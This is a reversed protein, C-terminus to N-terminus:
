RPSGEVVPIRARAFGMVLGVQWALAQVIAGLAFARGHIWGTRSLALLAAALLILQGLYVVFAGALSLGPAGGIVARIGLVGIVFFLATVVTATVASWLASLGWLLPALVAALVAGVLGVLAGGRLMGRVAVDRDAM